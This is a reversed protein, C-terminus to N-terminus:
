KSEKISKAISEFMKNYNREKSFDYYKYHSLLSPIRVGDELVIPIIKNPSSNNNKHYFARWEDNCFNSEFYEKTILMIMFDSTEIGENMEAPISQGLSITKNDYWVEYGITTLDTALCMAYDIENEKEFKSNHKHSIFIKKRKEPKNFAFDLYKKMLLDKVFDQEGLLNAILEYDPQGFGGRLRGIQNGLVNSRKVLDYTTIISSLNKLPIETCTDLNYVMSGWYVYAKKGCDNDDYYGIRGKHKGSKIITNLPYFTL